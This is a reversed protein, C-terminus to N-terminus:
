IRTVKKAFGLLGGIFWFLIPSSVGLGYAIGIAEPDIAPM